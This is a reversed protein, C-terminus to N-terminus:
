REIVSKLLSIQSEMSGTVTGIDIIYDPISDGRDNKDEEESEADTMSEFQRQEEGAIHELSEKIEELKGIISEMEIRRELTMTTM